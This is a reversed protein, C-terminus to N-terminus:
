DNTFPNLDEDDVVKEETKVAKRAVAMGSNALGLMDLVATSVQDKLFDNNAVLNAAKRMVSTDAVVNGNSTIILPCVEGVYNLSFFLPVGTDKDERYQEAKVRKYEALEQETGDVGYVFVDVLKNNKGRKPYSNLYNIKM